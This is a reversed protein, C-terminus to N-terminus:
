TNTSGKSLGKLGSALEEPLSIMLESQLIKQLYYDDNRYNQYLNQRTMIKVLCNFGKEEQSNRVSFLTFNFSLFGIKEYFALVESIGASVDMIDASSLAGFDGKDEHVAIIENSGSPAFPAILHWNGKQSIYREDIRKEEEILDKHYSSVNERYYSFCADALRKHYSYPVTTILLQLHPHVFSAGAPFLYNANLTVYLPSHDNRYVSNVFIQSATFADSILEPTFECLRLFHAKSVSIVAHYKAIPFLNPFLVAEGQHVRGSESIEEPYKPTNNEIKGGCLICNKESQRVMEDILGQDSAGFIVKIKGKLLKNYVSTNGFLPDHRVEVEFSEREYGKLVNLFEQKQLHKEFSIKPM